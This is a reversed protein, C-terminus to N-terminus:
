KERVVEELIIQALAQVFTVDTNLAELRRFALGRQAAHGAAGIDLDYLTEIHDSVFGIPALLVERTGAQALKDLTADLSPGLWDGAMAGASQYCLEWQGPALGVREAVARATQGVQEPYPDDEQGAVVPLSHATFIIKGSPGDAAPFQDLAGKLKGALAQIFSPQRHWANVYAVEPAAQGTARAEAAVARDLQDFYAQTSLKSYYPTLCLAVIQRLGAQRIQQVAEHIYPFWHRMGVFVRFAHDPALDRLRADVAGAQALTIDLLPSKGGVAAYRARTKEVMAPPTPRGGRVQRLYAEVDDLSGPSGYAMMLVAQPLM